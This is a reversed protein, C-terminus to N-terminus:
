PCTYSVGDVTHTGPGLDKCQGILSTTAFILLGAIVLGAITTVIGVIVGALAPTNKFGAKKSRRLAVASIVLGVISTLFALVLGILGLTRNPDVAPAQSAGYPPTPQGYRDAGYQDEPRPQGQPAQNQAPQNQPQQDGDPPFQSM